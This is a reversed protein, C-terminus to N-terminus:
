CLREGIIERALSLPDDPTSTAFLRAALAALEVILATTGCGANLAQGVLATIDEACGPGTDTPRTGDAQHRIAAFLMESAFESEYILDNM